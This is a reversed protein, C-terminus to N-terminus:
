VLTIETVTRNVVRAGKKETLDGGSSVFVNQLIISDMAAALAITDVPEIPDDISITVTKGETNGFLMDLKKAM